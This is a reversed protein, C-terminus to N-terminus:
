DESPEPSALRAEEAKDLIMQRYQEKLGDVMEAVLPNSGHRGVKEDIAAEMEVIANEISGPDDPNFSVHGIEGDLEKIAKQADSLQKQLKDLGQIKFAM